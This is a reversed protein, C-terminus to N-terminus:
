DALCSCFDSQLSVDPRKKSIFVERSEYASEFSSLQLANTSLTAMDFDFGIDRYKDRSPTPYHYTVNNYVNGFHQRAIRSINNNKFLGTARVDQRYKGEDNQTVVEPELAIDDEIAVPEPSSQRATIETNSTTDIAESVALEAGLDTGSPMDM